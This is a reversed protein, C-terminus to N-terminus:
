GNEVKKYTQGKWNKVKKWNQGKWKVPKGNRVKVIKSGGGNEM